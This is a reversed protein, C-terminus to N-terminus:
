FCVNEFLRGGYFPSNAEFDGFKVKGIKMKVASERRFRLKGM